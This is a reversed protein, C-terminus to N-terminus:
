TDGSPSELLGHQVAFLTATARTSAGIKTYIREIHTGVTKPTIDLTQAVQRNSAGRAILVLVEIERPTLGDPGSRRKRRAHGAAVLVAEVADGDLRGATVDRRLEKAADEATMASRYARPEIMAHYEDAAALVRSPVSLSSANLARHYGTGDLREHHSAAIGALRALMPPRALMRETYYPHLRVREREATTLPGPKDLITAPIGHRGVDHLLGARRTTVVEAEPLGLERAAAAALDAVGRSHGAFFPSRLDTFDAVAEFATDVESESLKAQLGPEADILAIWDPDNEETELLQEAQRCFVDVIEPDFQTGRRENAIQRAADIGHQSYHVEVIDAVHFLRISLAIQDGSLDPPVGKGDWRAFMEKLPEQVDRGLGLQAALSATSICHSMLGRQVAQGRTAVLSTALRLRHLTPAGAGVHRLMFGLMPLGALDVEYSDARFAIDDGFWTSVEYADAVCGVWALLAVYYLAARDAEGLGVEDGLRGAIRWARLVHEMPQGLGLDTGLSFAAVLEALRLDGGAGDAMAAAYFGAPVLDPWDTQRAFVRHRGAV